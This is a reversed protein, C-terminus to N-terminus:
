GKWLLRIDRPRVAGIAFALGLLLASGAGLMLGLMLYGAIAALWGAHPRGLSEMIPALWPARLGTVIGALTAAVAVAGMLLTPAAIRLSFFRRFEGFMLAMMTSEGLVVAVATGPLGAVYTLGLILATALISGRLMSSFYRKEQGIAILGYAFFSNVVTAAVFWSLIALVEAGERYQQGFIIELIPGAFVTTVSCLAVAGALVLRFISELTRELEEKPRAALQAMLPLFVAVFVRDVMLLVFVGKMAAGLVGADKPSYFYEVAVPPLSQIVQAFAGGLGIHMARRMAAALRARNFGSPALRDESRRFLMLWGATVINSGLFILPVLPLDDTGKVLALLGVLYVIGSLFRSVAVLRFNRIGQYYWELLLAYPFLTLLYLQLIPQVPSNRYGILAIGEFIVFIIAACLAKTVLLDGPQLERMARPKAIERTGLTALGFDSLWFAYSLVSTGVTIVGYGSIGLTRALHVTAFFGLLRAAVDGSFGFLADISVKRM